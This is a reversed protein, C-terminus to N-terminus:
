EKFFRLFFSCVSTWGESCYLGEERVEEEARRREKDRVEEEPVEGERREEEETRRKREEEGRWEEEEREESMESRMVESPGRGKARGRGARHLPTGRGGRGQDERAEQDEPDGGPQQVLRQQAEAPTTGCSRLSQNGRCPHTRRRLGALVQKWYLRSGAPGSRPPRSSAPPSTYCCSFRHLHPPTGSTCSLLLTVEGAEGEGSTEWSCRHGGRTTLRGSGPPTAKAPRALPPAQLLLLLLLTWLPSTM